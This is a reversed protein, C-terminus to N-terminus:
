APLARACGVVIPLRNSANAVVPSMGIMIMVPITVASGSSAVTNLFAAALGALVLILANTM